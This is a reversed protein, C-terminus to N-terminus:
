HEVVVNRFETRPYYSMIDFTYNKFSRVVISRVYRLIVHIWKYRRAAKNICENLSSLASCKEM